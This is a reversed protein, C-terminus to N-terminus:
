ETETGDTPEEEDLSLPRSGGNYQQIVLVSANTSVEQSILFGGVPGIEPFVTKVNRDLTAAVTGEPSRGVLIMNCRSFEKVIDVTDTNVRVVREEYKVSGDESVKQKIANIAEEDVAKTDGNSSSSDSVDIPQMEGGEMNPDTKFHVVILTIGPHESMRLGLALAERDDPGGFFYVIITSDVNSASVQASGGLGRDILIGVSCPAYQLVKKNIVRYEHRTTELSGDVKQHKHFPLIILAAKKSESSACIDEHMDSFHSIATMPRIQVRSSGM